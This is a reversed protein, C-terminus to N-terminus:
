DPAGPSALRRELTEALVHQGSRLYIQRAQRLRREAQATRGARQDLGALVTLSAAIGVPDQADRYADLAARASEDAAALRGHELHLTALNLATAARQRATGARRALEVAQAALRLAREPEPETLALGSLADIRAGAELAPAAGALLAAYHENAARRDGSQYLAGALGLRARVLLGAEPLGGALAIVDEFGARAGETDGLQLDLEALRLASRAMAAREDLMGAVALAEAYAARAPRLQGRALYEGARAEHRRYDDALPPMVPATGCGAMAALCLALAGGLAWRM